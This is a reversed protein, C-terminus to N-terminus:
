IPVMPLMYQMPGYYMLPSLLTHVYTGQLRSPSRMNVPGRDTCENVHQPENSWYPQTSFGHCTLKPVKIRPM